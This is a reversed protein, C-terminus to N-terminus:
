IKTTFLHVVEMFAFVPRKKLLILTYVLENFMNIEESHFIMCYLPGIKRNNSNTPEVYLIYLYTRVNKLSTKFKCYKLSRYTKGNDCPYEPRLSLLPSHLLRPLKEFQFEFGFLNVM